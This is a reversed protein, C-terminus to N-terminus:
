SKPEIVVKQDETLFFHIPQWLVLDQLQVVHQRLAKANETLNQKNADKKIILEKKTKTVFDRQATSVIYDLIALCIGDLPSHNSPQHAVVM